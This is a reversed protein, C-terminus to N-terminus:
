KKVTLIEDYGLIGYYSLPRGDILLQVGQVDELSCMTNVIASVALDDLERVQSSGIELFDLVCVGNKVKINRLMMGAPVPSELADDEPKRMLESFVANPYAGDEETKITRTVRELGDNERNVLYLTVEFANFQIAEESLIVSEENLYFDNQSDYNESACSIKVFSVADTQTLTLAIAAAALSKEIPPLDNYEPSLNVIVSNGYFVIETVTVGDPIAPRKDLERVQKMGLLINQALKEPDSDNEVPATVSSLRHIEKNEGDIELCFLQLEVTDGTDNMWEDGQCGALLLLCALLLCLLRKM